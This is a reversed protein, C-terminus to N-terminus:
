ARMFIQQASGSRRDFEGAEHDHVLFGSVLILGGGFFLGIGANGGSNCLTLILPQYTQEGLLVEGMM